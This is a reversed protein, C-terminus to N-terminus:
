PTGGCYDELRQAFDFPRYQQFHIIRMLDQLCTAVSCGDGRVASGQEVAKQYIQRMLDSQRELYAHAKGSGQKKSRRGRQIQRELLIEPNAEILIVQGETLDRFGNQELRRLVSGHRKRAVQVPSQKERPFAIFDLPARDVAVLGVRIKKIEENKRWIADELKLDINEEVKAGLETSPRNMAIPMRDPWEEITALSRLHSLVTSKGSSVAGCIYYVYRSKLGAASLESHLDDPSRNILRLLAGIEQSSLFLTVLNYTAFNAEQIAAQQESSLDKEGKRTWHVFYSVHGPRRNAHLRLANKLTGDALSHGIILWTKYSLHSLLFSSEADNPNALLDAFNSETLIISDSGKLGTNPIYGNPHYVNLMNRRLFPEPRWFAHYRRNEDRPNSPETAIAVELADDFNHSIALELDRAIRALDRFYPHGDIAAKFRESSVKGDVLFRGYLVDSVMKRWDSDVIAQTVGRAARGGRAKRFFQYLQEGRYSAPSQDDDCKFQVDAEVANLLKKWSPIGLENSVGAGLMLGLKKEMLAYHLHCVSKTYRSLVSKELAEQAMYDSCLSRAYMADFTPV